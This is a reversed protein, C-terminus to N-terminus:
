RAARLRLGFATAIILYISTVVYGFWGMTGTLTAHLAVGTGIFAALSNGLDIARLTKADTADRNILTIVGGVILEVGIFRALACGAATIPMGFLTLMFSSLLLLGAAFGFSVLTNFLYLNRQNM